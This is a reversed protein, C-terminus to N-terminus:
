RTRSVSVVQQRYKVRVNCIRTLMFFDRPLDVLRALRDAFFMASQLGTSDLLVDHQIPMKFRISDSHTKTSLGPTRRCLSLRAVFICRSDRFTLLLFFFFLLLLRSIRANRSEAYIQHDIARDHVASLRWVAYDCWFRVSSLTTPCHKRFSSLNALSSLWFDAAFMPLDLPM